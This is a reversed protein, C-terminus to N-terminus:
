SMLANPNKDTVLLSVLFNKFYEKSSNNIYVLAIERKISENKFPLYKIEKSPKIAIQPILSIGTNARIMQILTELSSAFYNIDNSVNPMACFSLAQERLCHGEKLLLLENNPVKNINVEINTALRHQHNIGLFFPDDFLKISTLESHNIPLALFAFDLDRNLLMQILDNTKEEIIILKLKPHKQKIKTIVEPFYYPALTPFAGIKLTASDPNQQTYAIEKIKKEETIIKKAAFLIQEGVETLAVKRKTRIFLEVELTQELKKIQASLTPQSVFCAQAAKNFHKLEAVTVFYKLDRLNM